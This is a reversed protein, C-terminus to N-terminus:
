HQRIIQQAWRTGDARELSFIVHAPLHQAPFHINGYGGGAGTNKLSGSQL